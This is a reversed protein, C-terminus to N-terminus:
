IVNRAMAQGRSTRFKFQRNRNENVDARLFENADKGLGILKQLGLIDTDNWIKAKTSYSTDSRRYPTTMNHPPGVTAQFKSPKLGGQVDSQGGQLNRQMAEDLFL